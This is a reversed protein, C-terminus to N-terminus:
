KWCHRGPQLTESSHEAADRPDEHKEETSHYQHSSHKWYEDEQGAAEFLIAHHWPPNLHKASSGSSLVPVSSLRRKHKIHGSVNQLTECQFHWDEIFEVKAPTQHFSTKNKSPSALAYFPCLHSLYPLCLYCRFLDFYFYTGRPKSHYLKPKKQIEAINAILCFFWRSDQVTWDKWYWSKSHLMSRPPFLGLKPWVRLPLATRLPPAVYTKYTKNLANDFRDDAYFHGMKIIFYSNTVFDAGNNSTIQQGLFSFKALANFGLLYVISQTRFISTTKLHSKGRTEKQLSPSNIVRKWISILM